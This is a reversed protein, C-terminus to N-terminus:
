NVLKALVGNVFSGSQDTGYRKALEVAENIAIKPELEEYKIEYFALRLIALDVKNMRSVKWGSSIRSLGEDIEPLRRIIEEAKASILKSDKGSMHLKDDADEDDDKDPITIGEELLLKMQESIEEEEHFQESFVLKFVQDRIQTRNM